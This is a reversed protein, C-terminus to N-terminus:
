IVASYVKHGCYAVTFLVKKNCVRRDVSETALSLPQTPPSLKQM